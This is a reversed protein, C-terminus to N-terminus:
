RHDYSIARVIKWSGSEKSWVNTFQATADLHETGDPRRSYFRHTGAEIAGFGPAADILLTGEVLERRLVIGEACRDHMAKLNREYDQEGVHDHYFELDRSLYTAYRVSDCADFAAFMASDAATIEDVLKAHPLLGPAAKLNLDAQMRSGTATGSLVGAELHLSFNLGGAADLHFRLTDADLHADAFRTQQDATRGASGVIENGRQELMLVATDHSVKGDPATVVFDGFWTGTFPAGSQAGVVRTSLLGFFLGCVVACARFRERFRM